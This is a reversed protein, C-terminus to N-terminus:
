RSKLGPDVPDPPLDRNNFWYNSNFFSNRHYIYASGHFEPSGQRTAFKIQVAGQGSSEAGPTATSMTVEQIADTKPQIYTFFGDSNKLLPDQVNVGDLTINVANKPLGNVSSTRPRGVTSTGPLNLILDLANRSAFPLDTIQRGTITTGVTASQTQILEASSGVVTM